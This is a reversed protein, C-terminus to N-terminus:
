LNREELRAVLAGDSGYLELNRGVIRYSATRELADYLAQEITQSPCPMKTAALHSFKLKGGSAAKYSGSVRNCGGYGTLKSSKSDLVIWPEKQHGSIVVPRGAVLMPRWRNDPLELGVAEDMCIGGPSAGVFREVILTPEPRGAQVGIRGDLTVLLDAVTKKSKKKNQAAYAKELDKYDGDRSVPWQLGSLCDSFRPTNGVYQVLGRLRVRPEMAQFQGSRKLEYPLKSVIERGESDLKRLTNSDKLSWYSSPGGDNLALIGNGSLTWSGIAYANEESGERLYTTRQMYAGDALLNILYQIGVCDACPLTGAFSVPLKSLTPKEPVLSMILSVKSGHGQTLVPAESVFVLQEHDRFTGRVVYRHSSVIRKRDYELTFHIPLKTVSEMHVRAVQVPEEPRSVDELTAEFRADPALGWKERLTATGSLRSTAEAAAIGFGSLLILIASGAALWSHPSKM